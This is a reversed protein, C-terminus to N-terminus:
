AFYCTSPGRATELDFEVSTRAGREVHEVGIAVHGSGARAPPTIAARVLGFSRVVCEMGSTAERGGGGELSAADLRVDWGPAAAEVELRYTADGQNGVLFLAQNVAGARLGVRLARHREVPRGAHVHVNFNGVFHVARGANPVPETRGVAQLKRIKRLFRIWRVRAAKASLTGEPRDAGGVATLVRRRGGPPMAPVLVRTFPRWPVFAGFAAVHVRAEVAQTAERSPNEFDLALHIPVGRLGGTWRIGSPRIIPRHTASGQGRTWARSGMSGNGLVVEGQMSQM